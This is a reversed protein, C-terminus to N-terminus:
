AAESKLFYFREDGSTRSTVKKEDLMLIALADCLSDESLGANTAIQEQTRAGARIVAIVNDLLTMQIPVSRQLNRTRSRERDANRMCPRCVIDRGDRAGFNLYTSRLRFHNIGRWEYCRICKKGGQRYGTRRAAMSDRNCSKCYLNRGSKRSRCIGFEEIDLDKTCRPCIM